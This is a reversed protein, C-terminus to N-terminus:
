FIKALAALACQLGRSKRLWDSTSTMPFQKVRYEVPPMRELSEHPRHHNYRHLWDATMQRVEQLSDYVCDLVETRYTKNFREFQVARPTPFECLM